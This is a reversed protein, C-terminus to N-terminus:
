QVTPDAPRQPVVGPHAPHAMLTQACLWEVRGRADGAVEADRDVLRADPSRDLERGELLKLLQLRLLAEDLARDVALADEAGTAGAAPLVLQRGLLCPPDFALVALLPLPDAIGYAPPVLAAFSVAPPTSM